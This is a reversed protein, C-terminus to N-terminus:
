ESEPANDKKLKILDAEVKQFAVQKLTLESQVASLRQELLRLKNKLAELTLDDVAVRDPRLPNNSSHSGSSSEQQLASLKADFIPPQATAPASKHKEIFEKFESEASIADVRTRLLTFLLRFPDSSLDSYQSIEKIVTQCQLLIDEQVAQQFELLGTAYLVCFSNKQRCTILPSISLTGPLLVTRFDREYDATELLLLVYDNHAIHLRKVARQFKEKTVEESKKSTGKSKANSALLEEYKVYAAKYTEVSKEYEIKARHLSEQLAVSEAVLRNYEELYFKRSNRKDNLIANLKELTVNSLYDANQKFIGALSDSNEVATLVAQTFPSSASLEDSKEIKSTVSNLSALASAYDRDCKIRLVLWRKLNELLRLEADQRAILAEHSGKGQLNASFGMQTISSIILHPQM